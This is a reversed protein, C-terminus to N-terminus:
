LFPVSIDLLCGLGLLWETIQFSIWNRRIHLFLDEKDSDGWGREESDACLIAALLM